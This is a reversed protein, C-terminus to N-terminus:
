RVKTAKDLAHGPRHTPLPDEQDGALWTASSSRLGESHLQSTVTFYKPTLWIWGLCLWLDLIRIWWTVPSLTLGGSVKHIKTVDHNRSYNFTLTWLRFCLYHSPCSRWVKRRKFPLPASYFFRNLNTISISKQQFFGQIRSISVNQCFTKVRILSYFYFLFFLILGWHNEYPWICQFIEM